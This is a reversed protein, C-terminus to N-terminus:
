KFPALLTKAISHTNGLSARQSLALDFHKTTTRGTLGLSDAASCIFHLSLHQANLAAFETFPTEKREKGFSEVFISNGGCISHRRNPQRRFDPFSGRRPKPMGESSELPVTPRPCVLGFSRVFCGTAKPERERQEVLATRPPKGIEKRKSKGPLICCAYWVM